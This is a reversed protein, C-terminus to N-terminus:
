VTAYVENYVAVIKNFTVDSLVTLFRVSLADLGGIFEDMNTYFQFIGPPMYLNNEINMECAKTLRNSLMELAESLHVSILRKDIHNACKTLCSVEECAEVMVNFLYNHYNQSLKNHDIHETIIDKLEEKLLVLNSRITTVLRAISVRMDHSHQPVWDTKVVIFSNM